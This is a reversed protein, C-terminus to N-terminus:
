LGDFMVTCAGVLLLLLTIPTVAVLIFVGIIPRKRRICRVSLFTSLSIIIFEIISVIGIKGISLAFFMSTVIFVSVGLGILIDLVKNANSSKNSNNSNQQYNKQMNYNYNNDFKNPLQQFGNDDNNNDM